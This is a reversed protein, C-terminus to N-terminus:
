IEVFVGRNKLKTLEQQTQQSNQHIQNNYLYLIQLQALLNIERPIEKLEQSIM